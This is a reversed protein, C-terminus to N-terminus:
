ALGRRRRMWWEAGLLLAFPLIWWLSRMPHWVEVRREPRVTARVAALLNALQRSAFVDGGRSTAWGRMVDDEAAAPAAADGSVILTTHANIGDSMVTVRYRGPAAPARLTGSLAGATGSPWLRIPLASDPMEIRASVASRVVAASTASEHLAANRLTVRVETPENPRLVSQSLALQIPQVAAEAAEAVIRRWFGEFGTGSSDRFRWADLAGSVVVRGAGVATRWIVAQAHLSDPEPAGPADRESGAPTGRAAASLTDPFASYTLAVPRAGPPLAAPWIFESANLFLSDAAVTRLSVIDRGSISSWAGLGLWRSYVGTERQDFLLVAGGGRIRLFNDLGSVDRESLSEPAGVIIVDFDSLAGRDDLAAPPAGADTSVNRSTVVRSTVLFRPDGEIARRVFTSMWSPRRDLFLVNWREDRVDIAVDATSRTLPAHDAVEVAVRLAPAGASHPVFQLPVFFRERDQTITREARDIPVDGAFL